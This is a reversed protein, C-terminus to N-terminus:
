CKAVSSPLVVRYQIARFVAVAFIDHKLQGEAANSPLAFKTTSCPHELVAIFEPQFINLRLIERINESIKQGTQTESYKKRCISRSLNRNRGFRGKHVPPCTGAPGRVM